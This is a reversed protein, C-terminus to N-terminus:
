QLSPPNPLGLDLGFKYACLDSVRLLERSGRVLSTSRPPAMCKLERLGVTRAANICSLNRPSSKCYLGLRRSFEFLSKFPCDDGNRAYAAQFSRIKDALRNSLHWSGDRSLQDQRAFIRNRIPAIRTRPPILM